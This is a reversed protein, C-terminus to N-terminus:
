ADGIGLIEDSGPLFRCPHERGDYRHRGAARRRGFKPLIDSLDAVDAVRYLKDPHSRVGVLARKGDLDGRQNKALHYAHLDAPDPLLHRVGGPICLVLYPSPASRAAYERTACPHRSRSQDTRHHVLELRTEAGALTACSSSRPSRSFRSCSCRCAPGWRFTTARFVWISPTPRLCM